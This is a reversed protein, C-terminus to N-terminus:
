EKEEGKRTLYVYLQIATLLKRCEEADQVWHYLKEAFEQYVALKKPATKEGDPRLRALLYAFRAINLREGSGIGRILTMMQYLLANGREENEKLYSRLAAMKEGIIDQELVDWAYRSSEDFLTVANKGPYQKSHDELAGTERAMASVPYKSKYIGIGASITLTGQSYVDLANHLDIAFGIIEDWAGVVFVDDGGAYVIAAHRAGAPKDPDLSFQGNQLIDNIHLKFFHSLSGSFASTRSLTMMEQPFGAVFAQGLNDVDARLVALRRIGTANAALDEFTPEAIYDGMWLRHAPIGSTEVRNKVYIRRFEAGAKLEDTLEEGSVARLYYGFPLAQGAPTKSITFYEATTMDTGLQKMVACISCLDDSTLRDSRRCVRCERDHLQTRQNLSLLEQASYRRMKQASIQQSVERFIERYSGEPLNALADASCPQMGSAVYLSIQFTELLWQHLEDMFTHLSEKVDETNPLLLYAHGGGAYILNARSLELRCLLEDTMAEMILELYFSRARLGKLANKSTITYIFSQIGSTDFSFLLFLEESRLTEWSTLESHSDHLCATVACRMKAADYLSIDGYAPIGAAYQEMSELLADVCRLSRVPLCGELCRQLATLDPKGDPPKAAPCPFPEGRKLVYYPTFMQGSSGNLHNFLSELGASARGDPFRDAHRVIEASTDILATQVGDPLHKQLDPLVPLLSQLLSYALLSAKDMVPIEGKQWFSRFVTVSM